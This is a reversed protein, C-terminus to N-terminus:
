RFELDGPDPMFYDVGVAIFGSSGTAPTAVSVQVQGGGQVPVGYLPLDPRVSLRSPDLLEAPCGSQGTLVRGNVSVNVIWGSATGPSSGSTGSTATVRTIRAGGPLNITGQLVDGPTTSTLYVGATQLADAM